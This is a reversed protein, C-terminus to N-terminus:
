NRANDFHENCYEVFLKAQSYSDVNIKEFWDRVSDVNSIAKEIENNDFGFAVYKMGSNDKPLDYDNRTKGKEPIVISICGCLSAIQSYATQTDYSICYECSNFLNVKEKEPLDDIVPGDFIKPLDTRGRGKRIIFCKGKRSGYNTRKYLELDFYPLLVQKGEPNLEWDNFIERYCIFLDDESFADKTYKNHFLFWRVTKKSNLINGYVVEPYVVITSKSVWPIIKRKCGTIPLDEFSKSYTNYAYRFQSFFVGLLKAYRYKIYRIWYNKKDRYEVDRVYFMKADYGLESLCKCLAHLVVVGGNNSEPSVIVFRHNNM